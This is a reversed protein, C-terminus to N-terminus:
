SLLEGPVGCAPDPATSPFHVFHRREGKAMTVLPDEAKAAGYAIFKRPIAFVPFSHRLSGFPCACSPQTGLRLIL